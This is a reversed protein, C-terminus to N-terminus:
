PYRRRPGGQQRARLGALGEEEFINLWRYLTDPKRRRLLGSRSVWHPSCGAAIKLIASCRERIYPRPHHRVEDILEERQAESLRLQRLRPM